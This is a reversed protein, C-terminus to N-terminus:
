KLNGAFFAIMRSRADAADAARYGDKNGPNEFGHGADPYIKVDPSKGGAKLADEFKKVDEPPIGRDLAGFNGLVAAPMAALTAKDTELAGYNIAVAKIAHDALALQLAYGGGMCWGVDGIKNPNVDKRSQLYTVAAKLDRVARDQPVGRVLEHAVNPDTTAKGRYLDIVLAVYGHDAFSQAQQEVWPTVGWWEHIIVLAPHKGSGDPTYVTGNVTEDGSKYSVTETAANLGQFAFLVFALALASRAFKM